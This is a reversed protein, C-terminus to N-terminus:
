VQDVSFAQRQVTDRQQEYMKKRKLAQHSLGRFGLLACVCVCVGRVAMAKGKVGAQASPPLRKLQDRYGMLEKDIAAIQLLRLLHNPQSPSVPWM